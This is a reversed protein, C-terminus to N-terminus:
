LEIDIHTTGNLQLPTGQVGVLKKGTTSILEAGPSRIKEWTDSSVITAAAGTDILINVPYRNVRGEVVYNSETDISFTPINTQSLHAKQEGEGARCQPNRTKRRSHNRRSLPVAELSMVKLEVLELLHSDITTKKRWM